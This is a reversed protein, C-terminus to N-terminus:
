AKMSARMAECIDVDAMAKHAVKQIGVWVPLVVLGKASCPETDHLRAIRVRDIHSLTALPGLFAGQFDIAINVLEVVVLAHPAFIPSRVCMWFPSANM